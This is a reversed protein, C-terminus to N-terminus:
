FCEGLTSLIAMTSEKGVKGKVYEYDFQLYIQKQVKEYNIMEIQAMFHDNPSIYYGSEVNTRDPSAFWQQFEDVAANGFLTFPTNFSKPFYSFLDVDKMMQNELPCLNIWNSMEKWALNFSVAHHLYVGNSIDVRTGDQYVLDTKIALVTCDSCFGQELSRMVVNAERDLPINIMTAMAGEYDGVSAERYAKAVDDWTISPLGPIIDSLAKPLSSSGGSSGGHTHNGIVTGDQKFDILETNMFSFLVQMFSVKMAPLTFPGFKAVKRMSNTRLRSKADVVALPKISPGLRDLDFKYGFVQKKGDPGVSYIGQRRDLVAATAIASFHFLLGLNWIMKVFNLRTM